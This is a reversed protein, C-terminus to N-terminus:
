SAAAAARHSVPAGLRKRPGKQRRAHVGKPGAEDQLARRKFQRLAAVIGKEIMM